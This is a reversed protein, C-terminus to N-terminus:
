PQAKELELKWRTNPDIRDVANSLRQRIRAAAADEGSELAAEWDAVSQSVLGLKTWSIEDMLKELREIVRLDDVGLRPHRKLSDIRKATLRRAERRSKEDDKPTKTPPNADQNMVREALDFPPGDAHKELERLHKKIEEFTPSSERIDPATKEVWPRDVQAKQDSV